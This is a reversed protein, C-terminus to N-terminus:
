VRAPLGRALSQVRERAWRDADLIAELDPQPTPRHEDLAQGVIRPVDMLRIQRDLFLAVAAEDAACLVAAYTAGKSLAERALSLCPFRELDPPEFTLAKLHALDLRPLRPNSWREPYSLAYQIPMRMDPQSLQAVISGDVFEVMSHIISQPHMVVDIKEQPVGFLWHAEIIEMGKNMLTASDITIKPGMTWNPHRLAQEPTAEEMDRRSATRFPGGSATLILRAVRQSVALHSAGDTQLCQWIANHESDVPLIAAGHRAAERTVAEGAMVLVEKNAPAIAKGARVAALTPSLGAIGVTGVMVLGVDPDAVMEEMPACCAEGPELGATHQCWFYRPRFEALQRQFLANNRGAALGIVRFREPFSRVVDLTQTGISGTSGLVVLGKRGDDRSPAPIARHAQM